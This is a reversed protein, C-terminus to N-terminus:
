RVSGPIVSTFYCRTGDELLISDYQGMGDGSTMVFSLATASELGPCSPAFSVRWDPNGDSFLLLTDNGEPRWSEFSAEPVLRAVRRTSDLMSSAGEAGRKIVAAQEESVEQISLDWESSTAVIVIQFTGAEEFLKLGSGTGKLEAVMGIYDGSAGDYLRMEFSALMPFESRTSWDLMWPGDVTFAAPKGSDKGTLREIDEAAALATSFLILIAAIVFELIHKRM